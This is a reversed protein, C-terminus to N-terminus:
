SGPVKDPLLKIRRGKGKRKKPPTKKTDLRRRHATPNQTFATVSNKKTPKASLPQFPKTDTASKGEALYKCLRVRTVSDRLLPNREKKREYKKKKLMMTTTQLFKHFIERSLCRVFSIWM